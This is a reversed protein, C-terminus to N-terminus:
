YVVQTQAPKNSKLDDKCETLEKELQPIRILKTNLDAVNRYLENIKILKSIIVSNMKAYTTTGNEQLANLETVQVEFQPRLQPAMAPNKEMSDLLAVTLEMKNAFREQNADQQRQIYVEEKLSKNQVTPMQFDFFVAFLIVAVTIVFFLLFKLFAQTREQANLVQPM